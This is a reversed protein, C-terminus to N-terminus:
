NGALLKELEAHRAAARKAYAKEREGPETGLAEVAAVYRAYADRARVLDRVSEIESEFLVAREYRTARLAPELARAEGFWGVLILEHNPALAIGEIPSDEDVVNHVIHRAWLM